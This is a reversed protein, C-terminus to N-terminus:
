FDVAFVHIQVALVCFENSIRLSCTFRYQWFASNMLFGYRFHSDTTGSCRIWYFDEAFVHIQSALVCSGSTNRLSFMIRPHLHVAYTQIFILGYKNTEEYVHLAKKIFTVGTLLNNNKKKKFFILSLRLVIYPTPIDKDDRSFCECLVADFNRWTNRVRAHDEEDPSTLAGNRVGFGFLDWYLHDTRFNNVSRPCKHIKKQFIDFM